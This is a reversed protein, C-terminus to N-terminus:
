NKWELTKYVLVLVYNTPFRNFKDYRQPSDRKTTSELSESNIGFSYIM